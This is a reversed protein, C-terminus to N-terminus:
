PGVAHTEDIRPRVVQWMSLLDGRLTKVTAADFDFQLCREFLRVIESVAAQGVHGHIALLFAWGGIKKSNPRCVCFWMAKDEWVSLRAEVRSALLKVDLELREAGSDTSGRIAFSRVHYRIAKSRRRFAAALDALFVTKFTPWDTASM